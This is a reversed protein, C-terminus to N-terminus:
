KTPLGFKILGLIAEVFPQVYIVADWEKGNVEGSLEIEGTLYWIDDELSFKGDLMLPHDAREYLPRIVRAHIIKNCADRVYFQGKGSITGIDSDNKKAIMMYKSSEESRKMQDDYTRVLMSLRLLIESSRKFSLESHLELLPFGSIDIKKNEVDDSYAINEALSKSSEFINCIEFCLKKIDNLNVYHEQGNSNWYPNEM